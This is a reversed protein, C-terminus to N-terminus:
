NRNDNKLEKLLESRWRAIDYWPCGECGKEADKGKIPISKDWDESGKYYFPIGFIMGRKGTQFCTRCVERKQQNRQNTLLQFKERIESDSMDDSNVSKTNEDWRIESFKHDPLCHPSVVNEYVDVGGLVKIIRRRLSPSWTEYGNGSSGGRPIHLMMIHTKNANCRPCYRKTDTALTYGFEKLDQIRRAWNPNKPLSCEVCQWGGYCLADFFGKTTQANKKQDWFTKQDNLWKKFNSPDMQDYVTNLHAILEEENKILVGTRRYEIPVWGNWVVKERPYTFSVHIYSESAKSHKKFNPDIIEIGSHLKKEMLLGVVRTIKIYLVM